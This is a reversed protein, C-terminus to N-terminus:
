CLFAHFQECLLILAMMFCRLRSKVTRVRYYESSITEFATEAFNTMFNIHTESWGLEDELSRFSESFSRKCGAAPCNCLQLNFPALIADIIPRKVNLAMPVIGMLVMLLQLFLPSLLQALIIAAFVVVFLPIFDGIQGLDFGLDDQSPSYGQDYDYYGQASSYSDDPAGYGTDPSSYSASGGTPAGYSAQQGSVEQYQLSAVVLLLIVSPTLM